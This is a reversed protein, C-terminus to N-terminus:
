QSKVFVGDVIAGQGIRQEVKYLAASWWLALDFGAQQAGDATCGLIIAVQDAVWEPTVIAGESHANRLLDFPLWIGDWSQAAKITPVIGFVGAYNCAAICLDGYELPPPPTAMAERYEEWMKDFAARATAKGGIGLLGVAHGWQQSRTILDQM